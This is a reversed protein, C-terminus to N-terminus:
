SAKLYDDEQADLPQFKLADYKLIVVKEGNNVAWLRGTQFNMVMSRDGEAFSKIVSSNLMFGTPEVKVTVQNRLMFPVGAMVAGVNTMTTKALPNQDQVFDVM